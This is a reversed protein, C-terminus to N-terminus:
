CFTGNEVTSLLSELRDLYKGSTAPEATLFITSLGNMTVRYELAELMAKYPYGGSSLQETPYVVVISPSTILDFITEETTKYYSAIANPFVFQCSIDSNVLGCLFEGIKGVERATITAQLTADMQIRPGKEPKGTITTGILSWDMCAIHTDAYKHLNAYKIATFKRRYAEEDTNQARRVCVVTQLTPLASLTEKNHEANFVPREGTCLMSANHACKRCLTDHDALIDLVAPNATQGRHKAWAEYEKASQTIYDKM